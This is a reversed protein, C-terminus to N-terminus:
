TIWRSLWGKILLFIFKPNGILYRRWLRRPESFLRFLWETASKQFIVPAEKQVGAYFNLAAGIAVIQCSYRKGLRYALFNQKPSSLGILICNPKLEGISIVVQKELDILSNTYTPAIGGIVQALQNETKIKLSLISLVESSSAVIFYKPGLNLERVEQRVFDIGRMQIRFGYKFRLILSVPKSDCIVIGSKLVNLLKPDENAELILAVAAFHIVKSSLCNAGTDEIIEYFNRFTIGVLSYTRLM